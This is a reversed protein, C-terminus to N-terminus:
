HSFHQLHASITGQMQTPDTTIKGMHSKSEYKSKDFTILINSINNCLVGPFSCSIRIIRHYNWLPETVLM